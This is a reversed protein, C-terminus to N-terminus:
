PSSGLAGEEWLRCNGQLQLQQAPLLPTPSHLPLFGSLVVERACTSPSCNSPLEWVLMQLIIQQNADSLTLWSAWTVNQQKIRLDSYNSSSFGPNEMVLMYNNSSLCESLCTVQIIENLQWLIVSFSTNNKNLFLLCWPMSYNFVWQFLLCTVSHWWGRGGRSGQRNKGGSWQEMHSPAM